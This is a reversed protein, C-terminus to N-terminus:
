LLITNLLTINIDEINKYFKAAYYKGSKKEKIKYVECDGGKKILKLNDLSIVEFREYFKDIGQFM